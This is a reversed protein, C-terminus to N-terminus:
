TSINTKNNNIYLIIIIDKSLIRLTSIFIKYISKCQNILTYYYNDHMSYTYWQINYQKIYTISQSNHM